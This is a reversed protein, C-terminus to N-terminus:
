NHKFLKFAAAEDSAKFPEDVINTVRHFCVVVGFGFVNQGDLIETDVEAFTSIYLAGKPTAAIKFDSTGLM